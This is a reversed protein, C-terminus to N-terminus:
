DRVIECGGARMALGLTTGIAPGVVRLLARARSVAVYSLEQNNTSIKDAHVIVALAELGKFRAITEVVVAGPLQTVADSTKIGAARLRTRIESAAAEDGALVVVDSPALSQQLVLDSVAAVVRSSVGDSSEILAPLSGEAGECRVLPGRYLPETVAAIRKTNRLNLLLPMAKAQL